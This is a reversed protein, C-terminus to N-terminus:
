SHDRPPAASLPYIARFASGEVALVRCSVDYVRGIREETMVEDTPGAHVVRGAELMMARDSFRAALSLDHLIMMTVIGERRTHERVLALLHLQNALDLASTPEDLLLLRPRRVLALALSVMQRQGGSLEAPMATAFADLRLMEMVAGARALSDPAAQWSMRDGNQALLLLELVSLRVSIASLDQAVYGVRRSRPGPPLATLDAGDLLVRGRAPLLGALARILTTKGAGNRGLLALCEGGDIRADVRDVIRKRGIAVSVGELVLSM